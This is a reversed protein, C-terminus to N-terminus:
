TLTSSSWLDYMNLYNTMVDIMSSLTSRMTRPASPHSRACRTCSRTWLKTPTSRLAKRSM